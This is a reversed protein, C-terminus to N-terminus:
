DSYNSIFAAGIVQFKEVLQSGELFQNVIEKNSSRVLEVIALRVIKDGDSTGFGEVEDLVMCESVKLADRDQASVSRTDFMGSYNESKECAGLYFFVLFVTFPNAILGYTLAYLACVFIVIDFLMFLCLSLFLVYWTKLSFFYGSFPQFFSKVVSYSGLVLHSSAHLLLLYPMRSPSFKIEGM